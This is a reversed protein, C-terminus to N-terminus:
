RIPCNAHDKYPGYKDCSRCHYLHEVYTPSTNKKDYLEVVWPSDCDGCGGIKLSHKKTLENLEELFKRVVTAKGTKKAM